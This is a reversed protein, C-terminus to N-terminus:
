AIGATVVEADKEGLWTREMFSLRRGCKVLAVPAVGDGGERDGGVNEDDDDEDEADDGANPDHPRKPPIVDGDNEGGYLKGSSAPAHPHSHLEAGDDAGGEVEDFDVVPEAAVRAGQGGVVELDEAFVRVPLPDLRERGQHPRFDGDAKEQEPDRRPRRPPQPARQLARDREQDERVRHDRRHPNHLTLRQARRPVVHLIPIPFPTPAHPLLRELLQD